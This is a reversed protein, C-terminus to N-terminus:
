EGAGGCDVKMTLMGTRPKLCLGGTDYVIGKGVWAITRQATPKLHSLVVLKPKHLATKGVNYIGGFGKENLEEGEIVFPEINLEKGVKRIEELFDDTNMEACPTDTVKAALRVSDALVNFCNIEDDTQGEQSDTYIFKVCVNRKQVQTTKSNYLPYSRAIAAAVAVSNQRECAAIILQNKGFCNKRVVDAFSHAKSTTNHRSAKDSIKHIHVKNLWSVGAANASDANESAVYIISEYLWKLDLYINFSKKEL